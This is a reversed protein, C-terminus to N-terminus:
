FGKCLNNQKIEVMHLKKSHFGFDPHQVLTHTQDFKQMVILDSNPNIGKRPNDLASCNRKRSLYDTITYVM